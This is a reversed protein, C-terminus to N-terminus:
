PSTTMEARIVDNLNSELHTEYKQTETRMTEGGMNWVFAVICIVLFATGLFLSLVTKM